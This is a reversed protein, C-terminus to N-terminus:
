QMHKLLLCSLILVLTTTKKKKKEPLINKSPATANGPFGPHALDQTCLCMEQEPQYRWGPLLYTRQMKVSDSIM